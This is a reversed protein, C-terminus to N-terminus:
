GMGKFGGSQHLATAGADTSTAVAVPAAVVIAAASVGALSAVLARMHRHM